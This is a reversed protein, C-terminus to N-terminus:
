GESFVYGELIDIVPFVQLPYTCLVGILLTINVLVTVSDGVPLNQVLIQETAEGFRLYGVIAMLFLTLTFTIVAGHLCGGFCHRNGDM